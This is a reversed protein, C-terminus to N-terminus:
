SAAIRSADRVAASFAFVLTVGIVVPGLATATLNVAGSLPPAGKWFLLGGPVTGGVDVGRTRRIQDRTSLRGVASIHRLGDRDTYATYRPVHRVHRKSPFPDNM